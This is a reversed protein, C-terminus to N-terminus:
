YQIQYKLLKTDCCVAKVVIIVEQGRHWESRHQLKAAGISLM